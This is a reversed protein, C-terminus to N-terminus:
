GCGPNRTLAPSGSAEIPRLVSNLSWLVRGLASSRLDFENVQTHPFKRGSRSVPSSGFSFEGSTRGWSKM